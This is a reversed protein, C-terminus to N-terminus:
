FFMHSYKCAIQQQQQYMQAQQAQSPNLHQLAHASPGAGPPIGAMMAGAQSVQPGPGSVGMHMQQPMGPGPQGQGPNHPVAMGPHGQAMAHQQMGSPHPSYAQALSTMM